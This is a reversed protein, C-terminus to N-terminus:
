SPCHSRQSCTALGGPLVRGSLSPVRGCEKNEVRIGPRQNERRDRTALHKATIAGWGVSQARGLSATTCARESASMRAVERVAASNETTVISREELQRKVKQSVTTTDANSPTINPRASDPYNRTTAYLPRAIACIVQSPRPLPLPLAPRTAPTGSGLIPVASQRLDLGSQSQTTPITLRAKCCPVRDKGKVQGGM